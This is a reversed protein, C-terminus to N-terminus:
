KLIGAKVIWASIQCQLTKLAERNAVARARPVPRVRLDRPGVRHAHPRRIRLIGRGHAVVPATLAEAVEVVRRAERGRAEGGFVSRTRTRPPPKQYVLPM